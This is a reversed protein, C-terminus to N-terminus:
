ADSPDEKKPDPQSTNEIEPDPTPGGRAATLKRAASKVASVVITESAKTVRASPMAVAVAGCVARDADFYPAAFGIVDEEYTGEARGWGSSRITALKERIRAPSLDTDPTHARLERSLVREVFGPEAFALFTLGSATAHFPLAEGPDIIVRNSRRSEVQGINVLAAGALVSAHSTEGTEDVLWRLTESVAETWPFSTARIKAFRLFAPGIHYTRSSADREVFGKSELATLFRLATAKNHGGMRALESLGLSPNRDNFFDLLGLAKEVTASGQTM